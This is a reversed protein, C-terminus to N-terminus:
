VSLADEVLRSSLFQLLAQERTHIYFHDGPFIHQQFANTTQRSWGQLEEISVESDQTSGLATIKCALPADEIYQYTESIAFDARLLPILLQLLEANQLVEQPTGNLRVLEKIFEAEPLHYTPAGPDPLHPARHGSVYLHVPGQRNAQRLFRALEFSIIAGMSHGFFAYPKDLLEQVIPGLANILSFLDTFPAELLRNERGPLQIPCVEVEPPLQESWSRYM